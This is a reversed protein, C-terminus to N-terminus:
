FQSFVKKLGNILHDIDEFQIAEMGAARAGECNEFSDDIMVCESIDVGLDKAALEYIAREPKALKTHYSTVIVDFYDKIPEIFEFYSDRSVNSILGIKYNKSLKEVYDLLKKSTRLRRDANHYVKEIRIYDVHLIEAYSKMLQTHNIFGYDHAKHLEKFQKRQEDTTEFDESVLMYTSQGIVGFFDFIIAKIM